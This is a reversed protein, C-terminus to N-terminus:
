GKLGALREIIPPILYTALPQHSGGGLVVELKGVPPMFEIVEPQTFGQQEVWKGNIFVPVKEATIHFWHM